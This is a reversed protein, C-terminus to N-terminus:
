FHVKQCIQLTWQVGADGGGGGAIPRFEQFSRKYKSFQKKKGGEFEQNKCVYGAHIFSTFHCAHAVKNAMSMIRRM